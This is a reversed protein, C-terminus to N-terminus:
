SLCRYSARCTGERDKITVSDCTIPRAVEEGPNIALGLARVQEPLREWAFLDAEICVLDILARFLIGDASHSESEDQIEEAFNTSNSALHCAIEVSGATGVKGDYTPM